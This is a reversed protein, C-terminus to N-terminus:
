VSNNVREAPLWVHAHPAYRSGWLNFVDDPQFLPGTDLYGSAQAERSLFPEVSDPDLLLADFQRRDLAARYAAIWEGSEALPQGGFGGALELTSIGFASDGKGAQYTLEPFDPAYVAGPMAAVTAVFRDVAWVDSRLPSTQRPNYGVILFEVAVLAFAFLRFARADRTATGLRRLAEDFGCVGLIVLVAFAPLLVNDDSWKNLTAGWALGLMGLSVLLWFRIVAYQRRLWRSILFVGAFVLLLSAGPLLSHSWFDGLQDVTLSHQRPLRVLFYEVWSGSQAYLLLAGLGATALLGALYACASRLRRDCAAVLLLPVAMAIATQKTLVALGTLAGSALWLWIARAANDQATRATAIAALLLCVCLPDVRALDFSFASLASTSIFLGAAIVALALRRSEAWVLYGVLAASGLSAALSVLRPAVLDVGVISSVLSSVYFFLPAYISPVYELSPQTYLPQAHVIRRIAQMAPTEMVWLPYAFTIRLYAAVLFGIISFAAAALPLAEVFLTPWAARPPVFTWSLPRGSGHALARM